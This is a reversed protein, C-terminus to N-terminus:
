GPLASPQLGLQRRNLGPGRCKLMTKAYSPSVKEKRKRFFRLSDLDCVYEFGAEILSQIETPTRALKCIFDDEAEDRRILQTYLLTNKINKHGPIRMAHLIDKTKHYEITAKWHRFTHFNIRLLRPNALKHAARKRYRDYCRRM